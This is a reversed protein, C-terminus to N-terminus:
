WFGDCEHASSCVGGEAAEILYWGNRDVRMKDMMPLCHLSHPFRTQSDGPTMESSMVHGLQSPLLLSVQTQLARPFWSFQLSIDHKSPTRSQERQSPSPVILSELSQVSGCSWFPRHVPVQYGHELLNCHVPPAIWTSDNIADSVHFSNQITYCLQRSWM